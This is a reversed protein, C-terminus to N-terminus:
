RSFTQLNPKHFILKGQLAILFKPHSSGLLRISLQQAYNNKCISPYNPAQKITSLRMMIGQGHIIERLLASQPPTQNM